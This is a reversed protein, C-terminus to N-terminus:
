VFLALIRVTFNQISQTITQIHGSIAQIDHDYHIARNIASRSAMEKLEGLPEEWGSHSPINPYIM